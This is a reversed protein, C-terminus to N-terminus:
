QWLLRALRGMLVIIHDLAYAVKQKLVSAIHMVTSAMSFKQKVKVEKMMFLWLSHGFM